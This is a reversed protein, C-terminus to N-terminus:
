IYFIRNRVDEPENAVCISLLGDLQSGVATQQWTRVAIGAHSRGGQLWQAHLRAYDATNATYLLRGADDALALQEPDPLRENGAEVSTLVDVGRERLARVLANAGSDHDFYLPVPM